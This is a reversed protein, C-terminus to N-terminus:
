VSGHGAVLAESEQPKLESSLTTLRAEPILDNLFRRLDDDNREHVLKTLRELAM